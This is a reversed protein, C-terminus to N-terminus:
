AVRRVIEKDVSQSSLQEAPSQVSLRPVNVMQRHGRDVDTLRRQTAVSRQGHVHQIVVVITRLEVDTLREKKM